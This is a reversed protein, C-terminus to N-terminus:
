FFAEGHKQKYESNLELYLTTNDNYLMPLFNEQWHQIVFGNMGVVLSPPTKHCLMLYIRSYKRITNVNKQIHTYHRAHFLVEFNQRSCLNRHPKIEGTHYQFLITFSDRTDGDM